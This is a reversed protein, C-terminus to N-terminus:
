GRLVGIVEVSKAYNGRLYGWPIRFASGGPRKGGKASVKEVLFDLKAQPSIFPKGKETTPMNLKSFDLSRKRKYLFM